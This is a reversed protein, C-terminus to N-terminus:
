PSSERPALHPYPFGWKDFLKKIEGSKILGPMRSDYIEILRRSKPTNAFRMFLNRTYVIHIDYKSMDVKNEKIYRHLINLNEMYCDIRGTDVLKWGQKEYDTEQWDIRVNLYRNYNYDRIWALKLGTLSKHGQWNEITSKKCLVSAAESGIPYHPFLDSIGERSIYYGGLLADAEHFNVMKVARKWPVIRYDLKISFPQYVLQVIDFYLGTGDENTIKEWSPTVIYINNVEGAAQANIESFLFLSLLVILFIKGVVLSFNCFITWTTQCFM